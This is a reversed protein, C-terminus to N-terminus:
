FYLHTRVFGTAETSFTVKGVTFDGSLNPHDVRITDSHHVFPVSVTVLEWRGNVRNLSIINQAYTFVYIQSQKPATNWYFVGQRFFAKAIIGWATNIERLLAVVSKKSVPFIKKAPYTENSLVPSQIGAKSLAFSIIEQPTANLFTETILTSELKLMDDKLLIENKGIGGNYGKEVYGHFVEELAGSYGLKISAPEGESISIKPQFEETFRIKAWDFYSDKSSYTETEIGKAFTDNGVSVSVEPYFLEQTTSM